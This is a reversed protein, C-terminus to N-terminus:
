LVLVLAILIRSSNLRNIIMVIQLKVYNTQNAANSLFQFIRFGLEFEHDTHFKIIKSVNGLESYYLRSFIFFCYSIFDFPPSYLLFPTSYGTTDAGELLVRANWLHCWM